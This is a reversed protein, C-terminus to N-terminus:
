NSATQQKKTTRTTTAAAAATSGGCSTSSSTSTNAKAKKLKPIAMGSAYMTRAMTVMTEEPSRLKGGLLTQVKTNNFRRINEQEELEPFEVDPFAKSLIKAIYSPTYMCESCTIFRGDAEQKMAEIHARAIDRNDVWPFTFPHASGELAVKMTAVSTPQKPLMFYPVLRFLCCFCCFNCTHPCFDAFIWLLRTYYYGDM